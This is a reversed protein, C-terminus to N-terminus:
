PQDLLLGRIALVNDLFPRKLTPNAPGYANTIFGLDQSEIVKYKITLLNPSDFM